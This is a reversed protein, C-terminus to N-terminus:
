ITEPIASSGCTGFLKASKLREGSDSLILYWPVVSAITGMRLCARWTDPTLDSGDKPSQDFPTTALHHTPNGLIRQLWGLEVLLHFRGSSSGTDRPGSHVRTVHVTVNSTHLSYMKIVLEHPELLLIGPQLASRFM